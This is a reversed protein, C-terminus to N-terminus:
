SIDDETIDSTSIDSTTIVIDGESITTLLKKFYNLVAALCSIDWKVATM